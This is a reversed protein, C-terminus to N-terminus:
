NGINIKNKMDPMSWLKKDIGSNIKVDSLDWNLIVGEEYWIIMIKLPIKKSFNKYEASAILKENENYLYRGVVVKLKLDILTMVTVNEGTAAVREQIIAAFEKFETIKIDEISINNISLSEMMWDPNLATKLMTKSTDAHKAYNLAPPKMHKSWFWFYEKNSGIDMEKGTLRHTIELRFNRDKEMALKGSVNVSLRGQQLKIPMNEVYISNIKSNQDNIVKIIEHVKNVYQSTKPQSIQNSSSLYIPAPRQVTVYWYLNVLLVLFSLVVFLNKM